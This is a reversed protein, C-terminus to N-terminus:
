TSRAGNETEETNFVALHIVRDGNVLAGGALTASELRVDEGQDVGPVRTGNVRQIAALFRKVKEHMAVNEGLSSGENQGSVRGARRSSDVASEEIADLAYSQVVKQLFKSFTAASDFLELGRVSGSIAFVAGAQKDAPKFTRVYQELAESRQEYIDAMAHTESDVSFSAHKEAISQWLAVQDSDRRGSARMSASVHRMKDARAKAYLNRGASSFDRSRYSWRGQEVCSVPVIIKRMGGVLISVNLVRNQRAGVLEEGDILLIPNECLNEFRLEPVHGQESIETVQALGPGLAEDLTLYDPTESGTSFLPYVQLNQFQAPSGLELASLAEDIIQM